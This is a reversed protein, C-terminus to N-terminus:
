VAVVRHRAHPERSADPHLAHQRARDEKFLAALQQAESQDRQYRLRYWLQVGVMMVVFPIAAALVVADGLLRAAASPLGIRKVISALWQVIVAGVIILEIDPVYHLAAHHSHLSQHRGSGVRIRGVARRLVRRASTTCRDLPTTEATSAPTNRSRRSDLANGRRDTRARRSRSSCAPAAGPRGRAGRAETSDVGSGAFDRLMLEDPANEKWVGAINQTRGRPDANERRVM